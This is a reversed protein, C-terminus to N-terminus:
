CFLIITPEYRGVNTISVWLEFNSYECFFITFSWINNNNNNNQDIVQYIWIIKKNFNKLSGRFLIESVAVILTLLIDLYFDCFFKDVWSNYFHFNNYILVWVKLRTVKFKIYVYQPM